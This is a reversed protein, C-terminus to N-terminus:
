GVDIVVEGIENGISLRWSGYSESEVIVMSSSTGRRDHEFIVDFRRIFGDRHFRFGVNSREDELTKGICARLNSVISSIDDRFHDPLASDHFPRLYEGM